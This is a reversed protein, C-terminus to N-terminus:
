GEFTKRGTLRGIGNDSVIVYLLVYIAMRWVIFYYPYQRNKNKRVTYIRIGHVVVHLRFNDFDVKLVYRDNKNVIKDNTRSESAARNGADCFYYIVCTM